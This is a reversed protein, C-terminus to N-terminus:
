SQKDNYIFRSCREHLSNIKRNNTRSHFMWILPCNSFHSNFFANMLIRKKSQGTFLKARVSANLKGGGDRCIDSIHDHFNLKWYLKVGLLIECESNEVEYIKM